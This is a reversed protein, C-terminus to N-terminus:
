FYDYSGCHPCGSGISASTPNGDRSLMGADVYATGDASDAKIYVTLSSVSVPCNILVFLEQFRQEPRNYVSYYSIGNVDVQLRIVDATSCKVRVGFRLINSNFDSPTSANQSLSIDSGSRTIKVSSSGNDRWDYYGSSQEQTVTGSITWNDPSGATWNEFSGNTLENGSTITEGAFEDINRIDRDLNCRFGCQRCWVERNASFPGLDRHRGKTIATSPINGQRATPSPHLEGM